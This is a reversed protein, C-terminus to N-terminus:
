AERHVASSQQTIAKKLVVVVVVVCSVISARLNVCVSLFLRLCVLELVLGFWGPCSTVVVSQASPSM